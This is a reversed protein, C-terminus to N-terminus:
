ELRRRGARRRGEVGRARRLAEIGDSRDRAAEGRGSGQEWSVRTSSAARVRHPDRDGQGGEDGRSRRDTARVVKAGQAAPRPARVGRGILDCGGGEGRM